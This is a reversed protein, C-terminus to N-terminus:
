KNIVLGPLEKDLSLKEAPIFFFAGIHDIRARRPCEKHQVRLSTGMVGQGVTTVRWRRSRPIKAILRHVSLLNNNGNVGELTM